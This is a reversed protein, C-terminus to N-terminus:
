NKKLKIEMRHNVNDCKKITYNIEKLDFKKHLAMAM